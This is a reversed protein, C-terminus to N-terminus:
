QSCKGCQGYIELNWRSPSFAHKLATDNFPQPLDCLHAETVGGCDDCIMFQSGRHRHGAECAIYANLSEIRHIFGHEQWFEIARYATPPKPNNIVKGLHELVEYAGLPKKSAAIIKLVEIRPETLRQKRAECYESAKKLLAKTM